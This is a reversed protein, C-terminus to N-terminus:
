IKNWIILQKNFDTILAHPNIMYYGRKVRRVLDRAKLEAFGRKIVMVDASNAATVPIVFDVREEYVNWKMGRKIMNILRLANHSMHELEELLDISEIKDRNTTGNGMKYYNPQPKRQENDALVLKKNDPVNISYNTM